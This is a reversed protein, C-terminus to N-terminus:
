RQGKSSRRGLYLGLVEGGSVGWGFGWGSRKQDGGIRLSRGGGSGAMRLRIGGGVGIDDMDEAIGVLERRVVDVVALDLEEGLEEIRSGM